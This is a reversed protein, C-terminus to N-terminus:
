KGQRSLRQIVEAAIQETTRVAPNKEARDMVQDVPGIARVADSFDKVHKAQSATVGMAKLAAVLGAVGASILVQSWDTSGTSFNVGVLVGVFAQVFTWGARELTDITATKM